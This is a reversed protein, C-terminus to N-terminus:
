GPAASTRPDDRLIEYHIERGGDRTERRVFRMGAKRMVRESTTNGTDAIALIRDLGASEFGHRIMARVMETALGRGWRSPAVGYLVEVEPADDLYRLGCFGVLGEGSKELAVWLGFGHREFSRASDEVADKARSRPIVEDDWLYGRVDPDTWLVHLADLDDMTAPRLWLHATEITPAAPDAPM